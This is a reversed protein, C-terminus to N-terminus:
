NKKGLIFKDSYNGQPITIWVVDNVIYTKIASDMAHINENEGNIEVTYDGSGLNTIVKGLITKDIKKNRFFERAYNGIADTFLKHIDNDM